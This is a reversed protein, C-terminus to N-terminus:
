DNAIKELAELTKDQRDTIEDRDGGELALFQDFTGLQVAKMRAEAKSLIGARYDQEIEQLDNQYSRLLDKGIGERWDEGMGMVGKDWVAQSRKRMSGIITLPDETKDIKGPTKKYMAQELIRKTERKVPIPKGEADYYKFKKVAGPSLPVLDKEPKDPEPPKPVQPTEAMMQPYIGEQILANRKEVVSKLLDPDPEAGATVNGEYDTIFKSLDGMEGQQLNRQSVEDQREQQRGEFEIQREERREEAQIRANEDAIMDISQMVPLFFPNKDLPM